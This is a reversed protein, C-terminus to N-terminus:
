PIRDLYISYVWFEQDFSIKAWGQHVDFITVRTDQRLAGVISFETGPGSRINLSNTNVVVGKSLGGLPPQPEQVVPWNFAAITDWLSPTRRATYWEWFNAGSLNNNRATTLFNNIDAATPTWTGATYAAGTPVIPLTTMSRYESLCRILQDGANHAQEWYVQPMAFDCHSLFELWPFEPHISPYRYTSLAVPFFPLANRLADVFTRAATSKGPLKYESEADIAYGVVGTQQIRQVAIAAEDAPRAGYVYHWGWVEVGKAHLASVLPPVLDSGSIVNFANVGDAIKILVHKLNAAVALDAIATVNGSETRSIQWIYYGKGNLM